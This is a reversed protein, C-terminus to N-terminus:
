HVRVTLEQIIGAKVKDDMAKNPIIKITPILAATDLELWDLEVKEGNLLLEYKLPFGCAPRQKYVPFPVPTEESIELVQVSASTQLTLTSV